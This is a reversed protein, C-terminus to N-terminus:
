VHEVQDLLQDVSVDWIIAQEHIDQISIEPSDGDIGWASLFETKIKYMTVEM